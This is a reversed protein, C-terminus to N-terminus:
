QIAPHEKLPFDTRNSDLQPEKFWCYWPFGLDINRKTETKELSEAFLEGRRTKM